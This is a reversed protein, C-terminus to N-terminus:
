VPTVAHEESVVDILNFLKDGGRTDGGTTQATNNAVVSAHEGKGNQKDVGNLKSTELKTCEKCKVVAAEANSVGNPIDKNNHEDNKNKCLECKADLHRYSDSETSIETESVTEEVSHEHIGDLNELNFARQKAIVKFRNHQSKQFFSILCLKNINM